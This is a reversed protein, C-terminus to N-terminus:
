SGVWIATLYSRFASSVLPAVAVGSSQTAMLEIYDAAATAQVLLPPVLASQTSAQAGISYQSGDVAGAGNLRLFCGRSGTTNTNPWAVQGTILYWGLTNGLTIRSTNTVLSHQGDRDISEADFTIATNVGSSIAAQATNQVAQALPRTGIMWNIGAVIENNQQTATAKALAAVNAPAPPTGM